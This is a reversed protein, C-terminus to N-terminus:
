PYTYSDSFSVVADVNFLIPVRREYELEILVPDSGTFFFVNNDMTVNNVRARRQFDELFERRDFPGRADSVLSETIAKAYYHDFYVPVLRAALIIFFVLVALLLLLILKGAGRQRGPGTFDKRKM